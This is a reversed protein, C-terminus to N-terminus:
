VVDAGKCLALNSKEGDHSVDWVQDGTAVLEESHTVIFFQVGMTRSLEALLDGCKAVHNRDVFRFPEDLIIFARSRPKSLSWLIIRLAFAMVDCIGGGLEDKPVFPEGNEGEKVRLLCECRGRKFDLEMVLRYDREPFIAQLAMTALNEIYGQLTQQTIRAVESLVWRAKAFNEVAQKEQDLKGIIEEKRLEFHRRDSKFVDLKARYTRLDSEFNM